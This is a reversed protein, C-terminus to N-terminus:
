GRDEEPMAYREAIRPDVDEEGVLAMYRRVILDCYHPSIETGFCRRGAQAAAILTTGSGLFLDLVIHGPRSSNGIARAALEVPKATPHGVNRHPRGCEWVTTEAASGFWRPHKWKKHCYFCLEYRQKYNGRVSTPANKVWVILSRDVWRTAALADLVERLRTSALWLYLPAEEDTADRANGLARLLLSLYADPSMCDWKAAGGQAVALAEQATTPRGRYDVAYPPDTWVLHGVEGDMLLAIADPSAADGCLVRNPGLQILEGPQTVAAGQGSTAMAAVEPEQHATEAGALAAGRLLEEVEPVDFGTLEVDFDPLEVLEGLVDALKEEDWDGSIRNLAVNLAKERDAALDVVSVEVETAGQEVLIKLRQHGGVLNGTRRNWVLPQVLGFEDISRRLREYERDGQKLDRRPNYQAASIREVAITEVM